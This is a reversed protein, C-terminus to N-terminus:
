KKGWAMKNRRRKNHVIIFIVYAIILALLLFFAIWLLIGYRDYTDSFRMSFYARGDREIYTNAILPITALLEDGDIVEVYGLVVGQEIPAYLIGARNRPGANENIVPVLKLDDCEFDNSVVRQLDHQTVLVIEDANRGATVPQSYIPLGQQVITRREFNGFGWELLNRSEFFHRGVLEDTVGAYMVVSLLEMEGVSALSVLCHGAPTTYGTKVGRAPAFFFEPRHRHTRRILANTNIWVRPENHKNTPETEYIETYVIQLFKPLRRAEMTILAMDRATSVHAEDHLGHTNVFNTNHAGIEYARNNMMDVFVEIDGAVAEALVNCSENASVLMASYLLDQITMEEGAVLTPQAHSGLPSLNQLATGSTTVVNYLALDNSDDDIIELVLMVTMIKTLSAPYAVVDANHEFLPIGDATEMLFAYNATTEHSNVAITINPITLLLLACLTCIFRKM